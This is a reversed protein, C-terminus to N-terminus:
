MLSTHEHIYIEKTFLMVNLNFSLYNLSTLQYTLSFHSLKRKGYIFTEMRNSCNNQVFTVDFKNDITWIIRGNSVSPKKSGRAIAALSHLM